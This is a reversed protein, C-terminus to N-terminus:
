SITFLLSQITYFSFGQIKMLNLCFTLLNFASFKLFEWLRTFLKSYLFVRKAHVYADIAISLRTLKSICLKLDKQVVGFRDENISHIITLSLVKNKENFFSYNLFGKIALLVSLTDLVGLVPSHFLLFFLRSAKM